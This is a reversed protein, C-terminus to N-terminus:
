NIIFELARDYVFKNSIFLDCEELLKEKDNGCSRLIYLLKDFDYDFFRFQEVCHFFYEKQEDLLSIWTNIFYGSSM